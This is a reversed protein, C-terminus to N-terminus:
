APKGEELVALAKAWEDAEVRVFHTIERAELFPVGKCMTTDFIIVRERPASDNSVPITM